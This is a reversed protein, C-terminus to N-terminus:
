SGRVRPREGAPPTTIETEAQAMLRWFLAGWILLTPLARLGIAVEQFRQPVALVLEPYMMSHNESPILLVCAIATPWAVRHFSKDPELCQGLLVFIPLLLILQYNAWSNSLMILILSVFLSYELALLGKDEALHRNRYVAYASLGLLTLTVVRGIQRGLAQDDVMLLQFYRALALNEPYLVPTERLLHPLIKFYYIESEGVGFVVLAAIGLTLSAVAGGALAIWRRRLAFYFFLFFPYLKVMGCTAIAAGAWFDANRRLSLLAGVLLLLCYTEVQLGGLTEMFPSFNLTIILAAAVLAWNRWLGTVYAALGAASLYALIQVAFHGDILQKVSGLKSVPLLFLMYAPPYKFIAAGPAYNSLDGIGRYLRGSSAFFDAHALFIRFDFFYSQRTAGVQSVFSAILAALMLGILALAAWHKRGKM